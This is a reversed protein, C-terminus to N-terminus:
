GRVKLVFVGWGVYRREYVLYERKGDELWQRFAAADPDDPHDALWQHGIWWRPTQYGDWDDATALVMDLLEVGATDFRDLLEGLTPCYGPELGMAVRAEEVPDERWFVEGVLLLGQRPDRLAPKMLELTGTTDGGIWTAGICSVVDYGPPEARYQAADGQVFTLHGAVGRAEAKERATAIFAESLDVGTGQIGYQEAFRCLMEGQGCALDLQRIHPGLGIIRDAMAGVRMLKEMSLPNQIGINAEAIEFFRLSM